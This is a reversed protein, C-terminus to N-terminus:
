LDCPEYFLLYTQVSSVEHEDVASVRRDNFHLWGKGDSTRAYATFHGSNMTRGQHEVVSTLRYM